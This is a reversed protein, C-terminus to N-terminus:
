LKEWLACETPKNHINYSLSNSKHKRVYPIKKIELAINGHASITPNSKNAFKSVHNIYEDSYNIILQNIIYHSDFFIGEPIENIIEQLAQALTM